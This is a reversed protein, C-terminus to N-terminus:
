GQPLLDLGATGRPLHTRANGWQRYCRLLQQLHFVSCSNLGPHHQRPKLPLGSVARSDGPPNATLEAQGPRGWRHPSLIKAAKAMQSRFSHFIPLSYGLGPWVWPVHEPCLGTHLSMFISGTFGLSCQNSIGGNGLEAKTTIHFPFYGMPNIKLPPIFAGHGHHSNDCPSFM